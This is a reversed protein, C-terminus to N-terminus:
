RTVTFSGRQSNLKQDSIGYGGSIKDGSVTASISVASGDELTGDLTLKGDDNIEGKMKSKGGLGNSAEFYAKVKGLDDVSDIRLMLDGTKNYTINKCTGNYTGTQLLSSESDEPTAITKPTESPKPTSSGSNSPTESSVVKKPNFLGSQCKCGLVILLCIVLILSTQNKMRIKGNFNDQLSKLKELKLRKKSFIL